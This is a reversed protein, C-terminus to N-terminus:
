GRPWACAFLFDVLQMFWCLVKGWYHWTQLLEVDVLLRSISFLESCVKRTILPPKLFMFKTTTQLVTQNVCRTSYVFVAWRSLAFATFNIVRPCLFTWELFTLLLLIADVSWYIRRISSTKFYYTMRCYDVCLYMEAVNNPLCHTSFANGLMLVSPWCTM